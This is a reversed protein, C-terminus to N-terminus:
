ESEIVETSHKNQVEQEPPTMYDGYMQSLVADSNKPAPCQLGEFLYEATEEYYKKPFVEKMKYAGMFNGVYSSTEYDYKQMIADIKKMIKRTDLIKDFKIVKGVAILMKEYWVRNKLNVNVIKDFQSYMFLLRWFLLRFGHIKRVLKNNPMGDLPFVDIWAYTEKEEVGSRDIVKSNFNYIRPHFYIHEKNNKYSVLGLPDSFKEEALKCFMEFDARPMGIDIDDDWPIFGQHRVAGLFTGGLLFYRFGQQNCLEAVQKLIDLEMLQLKRLNTM